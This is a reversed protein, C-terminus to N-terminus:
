TRSGELMEILQQTNRVRILGGVLGAMTLVHWGLTESASSDQVVVVGFDRDAAERAALAVSLNALVGALIITDVSARILSTELSTRAFPSYTTRSFILDGPAPAVAPHIETEPTGTPVPLGSLQLERGMSSPDSEESLLVTYVVQLGHKRCAALLQAMNRIAADVQAYYEDFERIIGREKAAEALGQDRSITFHQVDMLLLATSDRTLQFLPVPALLM